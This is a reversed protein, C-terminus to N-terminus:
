HASQIKGNYGSNSPNKAWKSIKNKNRTQKNEKEKALM